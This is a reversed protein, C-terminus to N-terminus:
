GCRHVMMVHRVATDADFAYVPMDCGTGEVLENEIPTKTLIRTQM